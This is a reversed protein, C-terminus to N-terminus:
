RSTLLCKLLVFPCPHSFLDVKLTKPAKRQALSSFTKMPIKHIKEKPFLKPRRLFRFSVDIFQSSYLSNM